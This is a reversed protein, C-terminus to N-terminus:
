FTRIQCSNAGKCFGQVSRSSSRYPFVGSPCTEVCACQFLRHDERSMWSKYKPVIPDEVTNRRCVASVFEDNSMEFIKPSAGATLWVGSDPNVVSLWNRYRVKHFAYDNRPAAEARAKSTTLLRKFEEKVFETYLVGQSSRGRKSRQAVSIDDSLTHGSSQLQPESSNVDIFRLM